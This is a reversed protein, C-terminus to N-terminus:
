LSGHNQRVEWSFYKKTLEVAAEVVALPEELKEVDDHQVIYELEPFVWSPRKGDLLLLRLTRVFPTVDPYIRFLGRVFVEKKKLRTGGIEFTGKTNIFLHYNDIIDVIKPLVRLGEPFQKQLYLNYTALPLGTWPFVKHHNLEHMLIAAVKERDLDKSFYRFFEAESVFINRKDTYAIPRRQSGGGKLFIFNLNDNEQKLFNYCFVFLTKVYSESLPIEKGKSFIFLRKEPDKEDLFGIAARM